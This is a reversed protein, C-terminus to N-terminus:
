FIPQCWKFFQCLVQHCSQGSVAETGNCSDSQCAGHIRGRFLVDDWCSPDQNVCDDADDGDDTWAEPYVELQHNNVTISISISVLKVNTLQTVHQFIVPTASTRRVRSLMLTTQRCGRCRVRLKGPQVSSCTKCYVFFTSRSRVGTGVFVCYTYLKLCWTSRNVSWQLLLPSWISHSGVPIMQLGHRRERSRRDDEM